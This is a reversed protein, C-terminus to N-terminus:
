GGEGRLLDIEKIVRGAIRNSFSQRRTYNDMGHGVEMLPNSLGKVLTDWDDRPSNWLLSVDEFLNILIKEIDLTVRFLPLCQLIESGARYVRKDRDCMDRFVEFSFHGLRRDKRSLSESFCRALARQVLLLCNEESM